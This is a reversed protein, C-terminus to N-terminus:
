YISQHAQAARMTEDHWYNPTSNNDDDINDELIDLDPMDSPTDSDLEFEMEEKEFVAKLSTHSFRTNDIARNNSEKRPTLYKKTEFLAAFGIGRAISRLQLYSDKPKFM